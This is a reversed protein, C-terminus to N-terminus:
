LSTIYNKIADIFEEANSIANVSDDLTVEVLEKYDFEQRDDFVSHLMRSYKKDIKGPLIFEKDFISIVGSHKSTKINLNVRIYLALLSYFMAYYARNIVSRPSVKAEYMKKADSLTTEAQDLRYQYLIQMNSM